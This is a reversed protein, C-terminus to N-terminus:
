PFRAALYPFAAWALVLGGTLAFIIRLFKPPRSWGALAFCGLSLVGLLFPRWIVYGVALLEWM